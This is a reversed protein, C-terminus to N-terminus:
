KMAVFSSRSAPRPGARSTDGNSDSMRLWISAAVRMPTWATRIADSLSGSQDSTSAPDLLVVDVNEQDGGLSQAVLPEPGPDQFRCGVVHGQEDYVFGM